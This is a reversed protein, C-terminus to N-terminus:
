TFNYEDHNMRRRADVVIKALSCNFIKWDRRLQVLKCHQVANAIMSVSKSDMWSVAVLAPHPKCQEIRYSGRAIRM